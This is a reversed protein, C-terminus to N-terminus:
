SQSVDPGCGPCAVEGGTLRTQREEPTMKTLAVVSKYFAKLDGDNEALLRQFAPVLQNYTAVSALKANNLQHEFWRDYGSYGGWKIKLEQYEARLNSYTDVKRQLMAEEPLGSQYVAELAGRTRMVLDVFEQQRELAMDVTAMQDSRGTSVLWRRVGELEVTTAFSENFTTDGPAFAVQHALEHFILRALDADAYDIFTNLVADDFWGLTSYAPVGGVYVDLDKERLGEAFEQADQESFYGRYGVCGAIPFCWTVPELSFEPAAFVNWLVYPRGLDAYHRYSGDDPLSLENAAFATIESVLELRQRLVPDTEDDDLLKDIPKSASWVRYQGSVAQSYYSM